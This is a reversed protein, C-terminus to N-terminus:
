GMPRLPNFVHFLIPAALMIAVVIAFTIFSTPSIERIILQGADDKGAVKSLKDRQGYWARFSDGVLLLSALAIFWALFNSLVVFDSPINGQSFRLFVAGAVLASFMQIFLKFGDRMAEARDRVNASLMDCHKESTLSTPM